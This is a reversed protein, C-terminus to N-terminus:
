STANPVNSLIRSGSGARRTMQKVRFNETVTSQAHGRKSSQRIAKLQNVHLLVLARELTCEPEPLRVDQVTSPRSAMHRHLKADVFLTLRSVVSVALDSGMGFRAGYTLEQCYQVASM